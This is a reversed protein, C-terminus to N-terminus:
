FGVPEERGSIPYSQAFQAYRGLESHDIDFDKGLKLVAQTGYAARDHNLRIHENILFGTHYRMLMFEKEIRKRGAILVEGVRAKLAAYDRLTRDLPFVKLAAPPNKLLRTTM